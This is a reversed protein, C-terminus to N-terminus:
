DFEDLYINANLMLSQVYVHTLNCVATCEYLASTALLDWDFNFVICENM